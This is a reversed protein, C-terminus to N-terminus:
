ELIEKYIRLLRCREGRKDVVDPDWLDESTRYVHWTGDVKRRIVEGIYALLAPFVEPTLVQAQGAARVAEDALRLRVVTFDLAIQPTTKMLARVSNRNLARSVPPKM